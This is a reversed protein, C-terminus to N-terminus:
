GCHSRRRPSKHACHRPGDLTPPSPVQPTAAATTCVHTIKEGDYASVARSVLKDRLLTRLHGDLGRLHTVVLSVKVGFEYPKRAKGHGICEVEPM